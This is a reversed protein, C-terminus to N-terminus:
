RRVADPQEFHIMGAETDITVRFRGLLGHGIRPTKLMGLDFDEAPETEVNRFVLDGLSVQRLTEFAPGDTAMAFDGATDLLIVADKDNIRGRVALAGEVEHYPASAVLLREEPKYGITTSLYVARAPYDIQVYRFAKIMDMGLVADVTPKRVGRALADLKGVGGRMCFLAREVHLHDFRLKEVLCVYGPIDDAVHKPPYRYAPPGLPVAQMAAFTEMSIWSKAATTDVLAAFDRGKWANMLVLPARPDQRSQFPLSALQEPHVRNHGSFVPGKESRYVTLWLRRPEQARSFLARLEQKSLPRAPVDRPTRCGAALLAALAVAISTRGFM